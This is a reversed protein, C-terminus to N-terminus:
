IGKGQAAVEDASASLLAVMALTWRM